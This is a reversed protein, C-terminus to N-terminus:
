GLNVQTDGLAFVLVMLSLGILGLVLGAIAKGRGGIAPNSNARSLGIAGFVVALLSPVILFCLPIAIIGLVMSATAIGNSSPRQAYGPQSYGPPGYGPPGYGPQGMSPPPPPPSGGPGRPPPPPPPPSGGPGRQPPPPPPPRSPPPPPPVDPVSMPDVRNTPPRSTSRDGDGASGEVLGRVDAPPDGALCGDLLTLALEPEDYFRYRVIGLFCFPDPYTPDAEIALLLSESAEDLVPSAIASDPEGMVSLALTWGRYTLAEVNDPQRELVAAYLASASAPDSAQIARAQSMVVQLESRPDLGSIQQGPLRQASSASLAWWVVAISVIVVGGAILRRRWDAPQRQPLASRGQELARLTAAARVTYGDKLVQYDVADVDGAQHERELDNLSRLLFRREEELAALQDPNTSRAM